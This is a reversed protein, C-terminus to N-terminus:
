GDNKKARKINIYKLCLERDMSDTDTVNKDRWDLKSIEPEIKLKLFLCVSVM